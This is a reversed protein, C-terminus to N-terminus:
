TSSPRRGSLSLRDKSRQCRKAEIDEEGDDEIGFPEDEKDGAGFSPLGVIEGAGGFLPEGM